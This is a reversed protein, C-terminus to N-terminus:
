KEEEGQTLLTKLAKKAKSASAGYKFCNLVGYTAPVSVGSKWGGLDEAHNYYNGFITRPNAEPLLYYVEDTLVALPHYGTERVVQLLKYYVRAKAEEVVTARWDPRYWRRSYKAADPNALIGVGCTAIRKISYAALARGAKHPYMEEDRRLSVRASWLKEAYGDLARHYEQWVYAETVRLSVGLDLLLKLLPTTVWEQGDFLPNIIAALSDRVEIRWYGPRKGDYLTEFTSASNMYVPEGSGLYVSSCAGLYASNKDWSHLYSNPVHLPDLGRQYALDYGITEDLRSLDFEIERTWMPRQRTSNTDEIIQRGAIAANHHLKMGLARELYHIAALCTVGDTTDVGVQVPAWQYTTWQPCTITIQRKEQWTGSTIRASISKIVEVGRSVRTTAIKLDWGPVSVGPALFNYKSGPAVWVTHLHHALALNLLEEVSPSESVSVTYLQNRNNLQPISFRLGTDSAVGHHTTM